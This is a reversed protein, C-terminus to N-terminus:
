GKGRSRNLIDQYHNKLKLGIPDVGFETLAVQRGREAMDQMQNKNNLLSDIASAWAQADGDVVVGTGTQLPSALSSRSSTRSGSSGNVCNYRRASAAIDM